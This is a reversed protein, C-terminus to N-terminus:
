ATASHEKSKIVVCAFERVHPDDSVLLVNEKGTYQSLSPESEKDLKAICYGNVCDRRYFKLTHLGPAIWKSSISRSCEISPAAIFKPCRYFAIQFNLVAEINEQSVELGIIECIYKLAAYEDNGVKVKLPKTARMHPHFTDNQEWDIFDPFLAGVRFPYSVTGLCNTILQELEAVDQANARVHSTYGEVLQASIRLNSM